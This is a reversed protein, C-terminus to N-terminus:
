CSPISVIGGGQEFSALIVNVIAETHLGSSISAVAEEENEIAKATNDYLEFLAYGFTGTLKEPEDSAVEQNESLGRHPQTPFYLITRSDQLISLRGKTGWLDLGNERYYNFNVPMVHIVAESELILDFPFQIDEQIPGGKQCKVHAVAQVRMVEGALMRAFDVIHSGNNRLGNGYVALGGQVDGILEHLRQAKLFRFTEDARRWYNVQVVPAKKECLTAVKRAEELSNGIPKEIIIARLKPVEELVSLRDEPPTCVVIVDIDHQAFLEEVRAFTHNIGWRQSAYARAKPSPDVVAELRFAPHAILAAAHSPYRYAKGMVPDDNNGAAILGFGIIATKLTHGSDVNEILDNCWPVLFM